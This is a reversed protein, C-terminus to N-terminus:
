FRAVLIGDPQREPSPRDHIIEYDFSRLISTCERHVEEGHTGILFTEVDGNRMLHRAGDLVDAELGQVDMQVLHFSRGIRSQAEDLSMTRMWRVDAGRRLGVRSLAHKVFFKAERVLGKLSDREREVVHSGYGTDVLMEWGTRSSIAAGHVTIEEGSVGNIRINEKIKSRHEELPEFAHVDLDPRLRKALILYYGIASGVNTFCGGSPISEVISRFITEEEPEHLNEEAYRERQSQLLHADYVRVGNEFEHVSETVPPRVQLNL